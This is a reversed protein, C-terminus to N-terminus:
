EVVTGNITLVTFPPSTNAELLVNTITKGIKNPIFSLSVSASDGKKIATKTFDVITCGCNTQVNKILLDDNTINKVYFVYQLTDKISIVGFDHNNNIVEIKTNSPDLYNNIENRKFYYFILIILVFILTLFKLAKKM